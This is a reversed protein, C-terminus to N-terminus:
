HDLVVLLILLPSCCLLPYFTPHITTLFFPFVKQSDSKIYPYGVVNWKGSVLRLCEFFTRISHTYCRFFYLQPLKYNHQWYSFIIILRKSRGRRSFTISNNSWIKLVWHKPNNWLSVLMSKVPTTTYEKQLGLMTSKIHLELKITQRATLSKSLKM